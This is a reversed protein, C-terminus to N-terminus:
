VVIVDGDDDCGANDDDNDDLLLLLLLSLLSLLPVLSSCCCYVGTCLLCFVGDDGGETWVGAEMRRMSMWDGMLEGDGRESSEAVPSSM